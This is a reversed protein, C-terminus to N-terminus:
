SAVLAVVALATCILSVLTEALRATVGVVDGGDVRRKGIWVAPTLALVALNQFAGLVAALGWLILFPITLWWRDWILVPLTWLVGFLANKFSDKAAFRGVENPNESQAAQRARSPSTYFFGRKIGLLLILVCGVAVLNGHPVSQIAHLLRRLWDIM